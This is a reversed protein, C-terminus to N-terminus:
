RVPATRPRLEFEDRPFLETNIDTLASRDDAPTFIRPARGLYEDTLEAINIGASHYYERVAPDRLRARVAAADFPIATGSGIVIDGFSVVHPFVKVFTDHVRRTPAWSVALGGPRLRDRVLAFYADSYLSGSYASGPRLADAEIIDYRGTSHLLHLRGDGYQHTIRPDTLVAQLGGYSWTQFHRELTPLQPKVIEICTIRALDRRGALGFLTDGSGLGIVVADRPGPHIFAPLAGLVTHIGGFPIWSQGIGNVFVVTRADAPAKRLVSTGSGDEGAIVFPPRTGHLAAWLGRQNPMVMVVAATAATVVAFSRAATRAERWSLLCGCAPFIASLAVLLKLTGATGLWGLAVWGTLISGIASGAINCALLTGVRRGIRAADNQVRKQLLPLSAGMLLTPPGILLAPVVLYLLLFERPAAGEGALFAALAAVAPAVHLPEYAAFYRALWATGDEVHLLLGTVGLGAYIGIGAQLLLFVRAPRRIRNVLLSGIGAGVGIGTLYLALLTGFTFATSKLMVGMLRFWVIELSLAILGALAYVVAWAAFPLSVDGATAVIEQPAIEAAREPPAIARSSRLLPAIAVAALVNIVASTKIAVELGWAPGLFWTAVFAGAAAGATNCAYLGGTVRAARDIGSTMARALLPLSMGMFFTPWLLSAFLVAGRVEVGLGLHGLRQYLVEYYLYTSFFGFLGICLEAVAFLALTATRALRDAIAAATLSGCGLGAMFAAVIITASHVDSGSFIVLLRQWAIQYVLASFGSAFFVIYAILTM